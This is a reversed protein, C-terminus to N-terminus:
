PTQSKNRNCYLILSYIYIDPSYILSSHNLTRFTEKHTWKSIINLQCVVIILNGHLSCNPCRPTSSIPLVEYVSFRTVYMHHACSARISYYKFLNVSFHRVNEFPIMLFTINTNNYQRIEQCNFHESYNLNTFYPESKKLDKNSVFINHYM